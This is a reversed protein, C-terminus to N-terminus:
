TFQVNCALLICRSPWPFFWPLFAWVALLRRRRKRLSIGTGTEPRSYIFGSRRRYLWQYIWFYVLTAVAIALFTVITHITWHKTGLRDTFLLFLLVVLAPAICAVARQAIRSQEGQSSFYATAMGLFIVAGAITWGSPQLLYQMHQLDPPGVGAVNLLQCYRDAVFNRAGFFGVTLGLWPLFALLFAAARQLGRLRSSAEPNSSSSYIINIRMTSLSYHAEYLVASILAVAALGAVISAIWATTGGNAGELYAIYIERFQGDTALLVFLIVVAALPLVHFIDMMDRLPKWFRRQLLLGLEDWKSVWIEPAAM